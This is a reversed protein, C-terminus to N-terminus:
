HFKKFEMMLRQKRNQTRMTVTPSAAAASACTLLALVTGIGPSLPKVTSWAIALAFASPRSTETPEVRGAGSGFPVTMSCLGAAPSKLALWRTVSTTDPPGAGTATGLM